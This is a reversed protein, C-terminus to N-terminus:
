SPCAQVTCGHRSVGHAASSACSSESAVCLAAAGAAASVVCFRPEGSGSSGGLLAEGEGRCCGGSIIAETMGGLAEVERIIEAAAEEMQSTLAEV